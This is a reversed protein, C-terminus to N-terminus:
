RLPPGCVIRIEMGLAVPGSKPPRAWAFDFAQGKKSEVPFSGGPGGRSRSLDEGLSFMGRGDLSFSGHIV